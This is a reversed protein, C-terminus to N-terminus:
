RRFLGSRTYTTVPPCGGPGCGGSSSPLRYVPEFTRFTKNDATTTERITEEVTEHVEIMRAPQDIVVQSGRRCWPCRHSNGDMSHDWAKGCTPCTHTHSGVHRRFRVRTVTRVSTAHVERVPPTPRVAPTVTPTTALLAAPSAAVAALSTLFRRRNM